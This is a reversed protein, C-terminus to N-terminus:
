TEDALVDVAPMLLFLTRITSDRESESFGSTAWETLVSSLMGSLGALAYNAPISLQALLGADTWVRKAVQALKAQFTMNGSTGLFYAWLRTDKQLYSLMEDIHTLLVESDSFGKKLAMSLGTMAQNAFDELLQEEIKDRLDYKDRYHAYFTSRNVMARDIIQKITINEFGEEYMLEVMADTIAKRTKRIRLDMKKEEM